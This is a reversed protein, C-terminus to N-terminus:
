NIPFIRFETDTIPFYNRSLHKRDTINKACLTHSSLWSRPVTRNGHFHLDHKLYDHRLCPGAWGRGRGNKLEDRASRGLALYGGVRIKREKGKQIEKGKEKELFEKRNQAIKGKKGLSKLPEALM